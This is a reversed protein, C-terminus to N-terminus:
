LDDLYGSAAAIEADIIQQSVAADLYYPGYTGPMAVARYLFLSGGLARAIRAAVPLAREARPSGDLPVMLRKFMTREKGRVVDIQTRGTPRAGAPHCARLPVGGGPAGGADKGTWCGQSSPRAYARCLARRRAAGWGM